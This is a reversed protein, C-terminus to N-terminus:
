MCSGRTISYMPAGSDARRIPVYVPFIPHLVHTLFASDLRRKPQVVVHTKYHRVYLYQRLQRCAKELAADSTIRVIWSLSGNGVSATSKTVGPDDPADPQVSCPPSPGRAVLSHGLTKRTRHCGRGAIRTHRTVIAERVPSFLFM